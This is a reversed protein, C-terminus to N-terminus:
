NTEVYVKFNNLIAQWGLQQLEITNEMEPEFTEVVKVTGADVTFHISVKRNDNLTYTIKQPTLIIDYTGSFDFSFSGDKAAMTSVFKGGEQLDNSAFPTHWDGSANNWKTIHQPLTWFAWVKEITANVTTEVTITTGNEM